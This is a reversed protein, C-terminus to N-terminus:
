DKFVVVNSGLIMEGTYYVCPDLSKAPTFGIALHNNELNLSLGCIMYTDLYSLENEESIYKMSWKRRVNFDLDTELIDLGDVLYLKGDILVPNCTNQLVREFVVSIEKGLDIIVARGENAGDESIFDYVTLLLVNERHYIKSVGSINGMDLILKGSKTVFLDYGNGTTRLSIEISRDNISVVDSDHFNLLELVAGGKAFITSDSGAVGADLIEENFTTDSPLLRGGSNNMCSQLIGFLVMFAFIRAAVIASRYMKM